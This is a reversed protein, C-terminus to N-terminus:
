QSKLRQYAVVDKEEVCLRCDCCEWDPCDDCWFVEVYEGCAHCYSFFVYMEQSCQLWNEIEDKNVKIEM